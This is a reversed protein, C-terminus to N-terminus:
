EKRDDRYANIVGVYLRHDEMLWILRYQKENLTLLNVFYSFGNTSRDPQQDIGNLLKVLDLILEDSIHDSHKMMYHDDIVVLNIVADNIMISEIKYERRAM